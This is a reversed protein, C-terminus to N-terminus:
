AEPPWREEPKPKVQGYSRIRHRSPDMAEYPRVVPARWTLFSQCAVDSDNPYQRIAEALAHADGLGIGSSAGTEPGFFHASDGILLLGPKWWEQTTLLAPETYRVQDISTLASVAKEAEPLLRIWMAKIADLGPALAAEAGVKECSRWGASGEPWGLCGIHGGDSMYSMAFSVGGPEKSMFALAAEPLPDVTAEIGAMTRVPSGVGDCAVVLDAEYTTDGEPGEAVVGVFRGSDDRILEKVTHEYEIPLDRALAHLLKGVEVCVAVPPQDPRPAIDWGQPRVEALVGAEELPAYGQYGLMYGRAVYAGEPMRELVVPEQGRARLLRALTMGVMGGGCIVVKM